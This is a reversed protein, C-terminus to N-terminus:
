MGKGPPRDARTHLYPQLQYLAGITQDVNVEAEDTTTKKDGDVECREFGQPGVFGRSLLLRRTETIEYSNVRGTPAGCLQIMPRSSKRMNLINNEGTLLALQKRM